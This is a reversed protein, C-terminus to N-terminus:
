LANYPIKSIIFSYELNAVLFFGTYMKNAKQPWPWIYLFWVKAQKFSSCVGMNGRSYHSREMDAILYVYTYPSNLQQLVGATPSSVTLPQYSTDASSSDRNGGSFRLWCSSSKKNTNSLMSEILKWKRSYCHSIRHFFLLFTVKFLGLPNTRRGSSIWAYRLGSPWSTM